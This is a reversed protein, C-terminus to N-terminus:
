ATIRGGVPAKKRQKVYNEVRAGNEVANIAKHVAEKIAKRDPKPKKMPSPKDNGMEVMGRARYEARMKAKSTYWRGDAMSQFGNLGAQGELNDSIFFPAALESRPPPEEFHNDPWDYIDHLDGCAKCKRFTGSKPGMLYDDYNQGPIYAAVEQEPEAQHPWAAVDHLKNCEKCHRYRTRM